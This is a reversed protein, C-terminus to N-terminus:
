VPLAEVCFLKGVTTCSTVKFGSEQLLECVRPRRYFYVPCGLLYQLRVKRVPMRWTWFRPWASLFKGKSIDRIRRLRQTPDLIYDWLGIAIVLDFSASPRYDLVDAEVFECPTAVGEREVLEGALRLMDAAPDVGVVRNAGRKAFEVVFRGSGCGIDCIAQGHVDSGRELVWEFRQSMDKRLSRDLFRLLGSRGEGTYISDFSSAVKNWYGTVVSQDHKM